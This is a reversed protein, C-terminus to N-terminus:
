ISSEFYADIDLNSPHMYSATGKKLYSGNLVMYEALLVCIELGDFVVGLLLVLLFFFRLLEDGRSASRGFM